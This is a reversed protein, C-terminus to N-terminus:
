NKQFTSDLINWTEDDIENDQLIYTTGEIIVVKEPDPLHVAIHPNHLINNGWATQMSGEFFLRHEFWIGWVPVVHPRGDPFITCIWYHRSQSMQESVFDWSLLNEKTEPINYGQVKRVSTAEPIVIPRLMPLLHGRVKDICDGVTNPLSNGMRTRESVTYVSPVSRVSSCPDREWGDWDTGIRGMRGM